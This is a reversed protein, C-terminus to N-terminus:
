RCSSRKIKPPAAPSRWTPGSARYRPPVVLRARSGDPHITVIASGVSGDRTKEQRAFAILNGDPSWAPSAEALHPTTTLAHVSAGDAADAVYIDGDRVYALRTGDPSYSPERGGPILLRLDSQDIRISAIGLTFFPPVQGWFALRQGDPAWAPDFLETTDSGILGQERSGNPTFLSIAGGLSATGVAIYRGDPSWAAGTVLDADVLTRVFRGAVGVINVREDVGFKRSADRRSKILALYRGNPSWSANGGPNRSKPFLGMRHSGDARAVCVGYRSGFTLLAPAHLSGARVSGPVLAVIVVLLVLRKM